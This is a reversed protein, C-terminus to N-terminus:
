YHVWSTIRLGTDTVFNVDPSSIDKYSAPHSFDNFQADRRSKWVINLLTM